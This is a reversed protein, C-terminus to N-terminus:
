VGEESTVDEVEAMTSGAAEEEPGSSGCRRGGSGAFARWAPQSNSKGSYTKMRSSVIKTEAAVAGPRTLIFDVLHANRRSEM